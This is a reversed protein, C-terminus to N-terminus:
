VELHLFLELGEDEFESEVVDEDVPVSAWSLRVEDWSNSINM